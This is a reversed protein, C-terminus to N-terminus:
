EFNSSSVQSWSWGFRRRAYQLLMEQASKGLTTTLRTFLLPAIPIQRFFFMSSAWAESLGSFFHTILSRPKKVSSEQRASNGTRESDLLPEEQSTTAVAQTDRAQSHTRDTAGLDSPLLLVFVVVPFHLCFGLYVPFWPDLRMLVSALPGGLLEFVFVTAGFAFFAKSRGFNLLSVLLTSFHNDPVYARSKDATLRVSTRIASPRGTNLVCDLESGCERRWDNPLLFFGVHSPGPLGRAM